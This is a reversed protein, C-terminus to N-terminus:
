QLGTLVSRNGSRELYYIYDDEFSVPWYVRGELELEADPLPLLFRTGQPSNEIHNLSLRREPTRMTSLSM